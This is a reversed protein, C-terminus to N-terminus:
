SIRIPVAILRSVRVGQVTEWVIAYRYHTPERAVGWGADRLHKPATGGYGREGYSQPTFGYM